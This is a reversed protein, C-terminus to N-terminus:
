LAIVPEGDIITVSRRLRFVGIYIPQRFQSNSHSPIAGPPAVCRVYDWLRFSISYQLWRLLERERSLRRPSMPPHLLDESFSSLDQVQRAYWVVYELHQKVVPHLLTEILAHSDPEWFLYLDSFSKEDLDKPRIYELIRDRVMGIQYCNLVGMEPFALWLLFPLPRIGSGTHLALWHRKWRRSLHMMADGDRVRSFVRYGAGRLRFSNILSVGLQKFIFASVFGYCLRICALSVPSLDVWDKKHYNM